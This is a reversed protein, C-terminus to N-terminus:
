SFIEDDTWLGCVQVESDFETIKEFTPTKSLNLIKSVKEREECQHTETHLEQEEDSESEVSSFCAKGFCHKIKKQTVNTWAGDAMRMSYLKNFPKM